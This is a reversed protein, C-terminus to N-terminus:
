SPVVKTTGILLPFNPREAGSSNYLLVFFHPAHFELEPSLNQRHARHDRQRRKAGRLIRMRVPRRLALRLHMGIGLMRRVGITGRGILIVRRRIRVGNRMRVLIEIVLAVMGVARAVARRGDVIGRRALLESYAGRTGPYVLHAIKRRLLPLVNQLVAMGKLIQRRVLLTLNALLEILPIAHRGRLLGVQALFFGGPAVESRLLALVDLAINQGAPALHGPIALLDDLLLEADQLVHRFGRAILAQVVRIECAAQAIFLLGRQPIQAVGV